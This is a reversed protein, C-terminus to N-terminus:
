LVASAFTLSEKIIMDLLFVFISIWGHAAFGFVSEERNSFNELDSLARIQVVEPTRHLIFVWDLDGNLDCGSGMRSGANLYGVHPLLGLPNDPSNPIRFPFFLEDDHDPLLLLDQQLPVVTSSRYSRIKGVGSEHKRESFFTFYSDRWGM